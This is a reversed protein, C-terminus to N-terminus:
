KMVDEKKWSSLLFFVMAFLLLIGIEINLQLLSKGYMIKEAGKLVWTTPVFNSAKQLIDPMIERPWFCGGLMCFPTFILTGIASAQRSDKSLSGIFMNLAVCVLSFVVLIFFMNMPAPGIDAKFVKILLILLVIIQFISIFLYSLINQLMYQKITLPTTFLRSYINKEKDKIMLNSSVTALSFVGMVLFGLAQLSNTKNGEEREVNKCEINFSGEKYAEIGKYFKDEAGEAAKAINKVSSIYSEIYFKAPLAANTENISFGRIDVDKGEIIGKTFDKDIVIAYDIRNNILEGKIDKEELAKIKGNSKLNEKLIETLKTNDKDVVGVIVNGGTGSNASMILAMFLVPFVFMFFLNLKNKLMRKINNQFVIM